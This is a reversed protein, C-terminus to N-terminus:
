TWKIIRECLAKQGRIGHDNAIDPNKYYFDLADALDPAVCFELLGGAMDIEKTNYIRSRVPLMRCWDKSFFEKFNDLETLIQPKGLMQHETNCLGFGEGCCTNVGVDCANYLENMKEDSIHDKGPTLICNNLLIHMKDSPIKNIKGFTQALELIDYAGVYARGKCGFFIKIKPNYNNGKWFQIFGDMTIDLCKRYSNRNMNLVMFDDEGFNWRKKCDLAPMIKFHNEVPHDLYCVKHQPVGMEIMHNMWTKHFCVFMDVKKNLHDIFRQWKYTLDIYMIFQFRKEFEMMINVYQAGVIVDNYLIVVDPKVTKTLIEKLIDYGFGDKDKIFHINPHAVRDIDDSKAQFALYHVENGEISALKNSLLHGIKAYGTTIKPWTACFLIKM